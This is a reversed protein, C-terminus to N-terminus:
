QRPRRESAARRMARVLGRMRTLREDPDDGAEDIIGGITEARAVIEELRQELAELDLSEIAEPPPELALLAQATGRVLRIGVQRIAGDMQNIARAAALLETDLEEEAEGLLGAAQMIDLESVGLANALAVLTRSAPEVQGNIIMSLGGSSIGARRALENQTWFPGESRKKRALESKIYHGIAPLQKSMESFM